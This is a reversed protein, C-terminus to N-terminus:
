SVLVEVVSSWDSTIGKTAKTIVRFEMRTDATLNKITISSATAYEGNQWVTEGKKRKEIGFITSGPVPNWSLYAEGTRDLNTATLGTPAAIATLAVPAKRVEFGAALVVAEDGDALVDVERAVVDLQGILLKQAEEKKLTFVRGGNLADSLATQYNVSLVKLTSVSKALAAFQPDNTTRLVINNSFTGLEKQTLKKYSLVVLNKM